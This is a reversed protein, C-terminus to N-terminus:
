SMFIQTALLLIVLRVYTERLISQHVADASSCLQGPFSSLTLWRGAPVKGLEISIVSPQLHDAQQDFGNSDIILYHSSSAEKGSSKTLFFM